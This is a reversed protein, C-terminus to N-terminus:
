EAIADVLYKLSEASVIWSGFSFLTRVASASMGWNVGSFLGWM